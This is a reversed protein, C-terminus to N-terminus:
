KQKREGQKEAAAFRLPSKKGLSRDDEFVAVDGLAILIPIGEGAAAPMKHLAHIFVVSQYGDTSWSVRAFLLAVRCRGRLGSQSHPLLLWGLSSHGRCNELTGSADHLGSHKLQSNLCDRLRYVRDLDTTPGLREDVSPAIYTIAQVPAIEYCLFKAERKFASTLTSWSGASYVRMIYGHFDGLFM